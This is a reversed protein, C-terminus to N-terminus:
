GRSAILRHRARLGLIIPTATSDLAALLSPAIQSALSGHAASAAYYGAIGCVIM